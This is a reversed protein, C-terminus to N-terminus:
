FAPAHIKCKKETIHQCKKTNKTCKQDDTIINQWPYNNEAVPSYKRGHTIIKQWPYDNEAV